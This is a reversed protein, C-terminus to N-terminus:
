TEISNERNVEPIDSNTNNPTTSNTDNPITESKSKQLEIQEEAEVAEYLCMYCFQFQEKTQVMGFRSKRLRLVTSRILDKVNLQSDGSQQIHYHLKRLTSHVTCFTGTRGIGASCHVIIPPKRNYDTGNNRDVSHLLETFAATSAPLGHDPWETYQYHYINRTQNLEKHEVLFQRKVL